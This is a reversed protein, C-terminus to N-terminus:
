SISIGPYWLLFVNETGINSISVIEADLSCREEMVEAVDTDMRKSKAFIGLTRITSSSTSTDPTFINSSAAIPYKTSVTLCTSARNSRVRRVKGTEERTEGLEFKM